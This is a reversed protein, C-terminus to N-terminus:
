RLFRTALAQRDSVVMVDGDHNGHFRLAIWMILWHNTVASGDPDCAEFLRDLCNDRDNTRFFFVDLVTPILHAHKPLLLPEVQVMNRQPLVQILKAHATSM